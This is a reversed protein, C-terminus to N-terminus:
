GLTTIRWPEIEYADDDQDIVVVMGQRFSDVRGTFAYVHMDGIIPEPVEVEDDEQILTGHADKMDQM